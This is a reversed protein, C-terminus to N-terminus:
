LKLIRKPNDYFLAKAIELAKAEGFVGEEVKEALVVSVNRRAIELHGYVGDVFLYDGGFASIKSYPVADLFGRLAGISASPSIIHAWCMDIYVNPFMKALACAVSQYPYSIHFLDFDVDPYDIFLNSLLEPNGNGIINGTGEFLGTHFQVTLHRQGALKLIYHMLYDQLERPFRLLPKEGVCEREWLALAEKFLAKAKVYGTKEFRLPRHYAISSKITRADYRDLLLVMERELAELWDDLCRVTLGYENRIHGLIDRGFPEAPQIFNQPQWAPKFMPVKNEIHFTWIDIVCTEIGCLERLVHTFHGPKKNELFADNLPVITRGSIGDIGYIGKVAIDLARGYGTYRCLEWYPEVAKWRQALSKGSDTVFDMNEPKMGASLIDSKMYHLLYESLVDSGDACRIAEDWVLHEHTDIVPM